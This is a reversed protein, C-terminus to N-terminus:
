TRHASRAFGGSAGRRKKVSRSMDSRGGSRAGRGTEERVVYLPRARAEDGVRAVYAGLVGLLLLVVGDLLALLAVPILWGAAPGTTGGAARGSAARVIGVVLLALSLPVVAAGLWAAIGLPVRSFSVIADLGLSIMSGLRYKTRGAARATREYRVEAQPFGAWVAMGRLYRRREPMVRLVDCASRDLLRFDAVDVRIPVDAVLRLLRHFAFSAARKAWGEGRRHMRRAHVVAFGERWKAVMEPILEPPDQLDADITVVADGSSRDIGASLAAQHGFPRSLRVARVRADRAALGALFRWTADGSGDDVYVVEARVEMGSLVGSLRRHFEPLVEAEDRAPVVVSLLPQRNM